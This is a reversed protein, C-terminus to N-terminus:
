NKEANWENIVIRKLTQLTYPKLNLSNSFKKRKSFLRSLNTFLDHVKIKKNSLHMGLIETYKLNHLIYRIKMNLASKFKLSQLESLSESITPCEKSQKFIWVKMSM